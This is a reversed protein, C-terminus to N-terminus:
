LDDFPSKIQQISKTSVHTYIETTKSSNHGLLEQIYRLDTGNELLHTAYSHRLWHLTVPKKIGSKALAQKLILQLSRAKYARGEIQGEFLYHKPKCIKYYERLMELIKPSLPVIRDKKGKSNKLLVINRKSDIDIPRLALLEGCRLGCSYIVALMTKHKINSHADLILKVEKKSLVNPLVKARKPRHIKDIVIKTERITQFFLKIANVIQNQYSASFDHKLIYDNNYIIVDENTIENVPKERYYTLFSKIADSYSVVTSNSYRQSRLNNIFKEIQEIGERSPLSQSHPILEFRFRNEVTDAVHWVAKTTSWLAGECEKIKEQMQINQEFYVAIRKVKKHTIIKASWNM